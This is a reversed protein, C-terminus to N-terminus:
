HDRIVDLREKARRVLDAGEVPNLYWQGDACASAVWNGNPSFAVDLVKEPHSWSRYKQKTQLDWVVVDKDDSASALYKGDPSFAIEHVPKRSHKLLPGEVATESAIAWLRIGGVTDATALQKGDPSIFARTEQEPHSTLRIAEGGLSSVRWLDGESAFILTEGHQTPYRYYGKQAFLSSSLVLLSLALIFRNIHM